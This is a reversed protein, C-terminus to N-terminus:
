AEDLVLIDVKVIMTPEPLQGSSIEVITADAVLYGPIQFEHDPLTAVLAEGSEVAEAGNFFWTMSHRTGAFTISAWAIECHDTLIGAVALAAVADVLRSSGSRLGRSPRATSRNAVIRDPLM